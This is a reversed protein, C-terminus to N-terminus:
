RGNAAWEQATITFRRYYTPQDLFMGDNGRGTEVMGLRQLIRISRQNADLAEAWVEQLSLQHFGYDLAAAAASQGLGRGWSCREGIVFGLERRYPEDGHLDVYGVLLGEHIVGLRILGHPPYQVLTQHFRQHEAFSLRVTWAAERCFEPDSGWRAIVDADQLDLPKLTVPDESRNVQPTYSSAAVAAVGIQGRLIWARGDDVARKLEERAAVFEKRQYAVLGRDFPTFV